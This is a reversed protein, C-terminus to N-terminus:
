ITVLYNLLDQCEDTHLGCVSTHHICDILELCVSIMWQEDGLDCDCDCIIKELIVVIVNLRIDLIIVPLACNSVCIFRIYHPHMHVNIKMQYSVQQTLVKLLCCNM